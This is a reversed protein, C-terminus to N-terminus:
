KSKKVTSRRLKGDADRFEIHVQENEVAALTLKVDPRAPITFESGEKIYEEWAPGGASAGSLIRAFYTPITHPIRRVLTVKKGTELWTISIESADVKVGLNNVEEKEEFGELRIKGDRSKEGIKMISTDRPYNATKERTIQYREADPKGSFTLIYNQAFRQDFELKVPLEGPIAKESEPAPTKEDKSEQALSSSLLILSLAALFFGQFPISGICRTRVIENADM